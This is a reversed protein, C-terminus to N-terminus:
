CWQQLGHAKVKVIELMEKLHQKAEEYQHPPIRRYREKFTPNDTLKISHKVKDTKGLDMDKLAFLSSYEIIVDKVEKQEEPSWSKIGELDLKGMLLDVEDQTLICKEPPKSDKTETESGIATDSTGNSYTNSTANENESKPSLMPPVANAAEVKGVVTGTKLIIEKSILNKVSVMVKNSGPKMFSYSRVAVIKSNTINNSHDTAVNVRKHHGKVKSRSKVFTTSLPPLITTKHVKVDGQVSDLNFYEMESFKAAYTPLAVSRWSEGLKAWEKETIVELAAHIHKTGIAFPVMDGYRSDNMVMVLADEDYAPSEPIKLNVKVHGIYAVSIGTSGEIDLLKDLGKIKLKMKTAQSITITSMKAGADLLGPYEKGDVIIKSENRKGILRVIPDLNHYRDYITRVTPKTKPNNRPKPQEARHECTNPPSPINTGTKPGEGKQLKFSISM